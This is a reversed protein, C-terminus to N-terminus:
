QGISIKEKQLLAAKFLQTFYGILQKVYEPPNKLKFDRTEVHILLGQLRHIEKNLKEYTDFEELHEAIEEPTLPSSFIEM